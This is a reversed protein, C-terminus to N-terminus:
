KSLIVFMLAEIKLNLKKWLAKILFVKSIEKGNGLLSILILNRLSFIRITKLYQIGISM